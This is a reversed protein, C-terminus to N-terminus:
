GNSAFDIIKRSDEVQIKLAKFASEIIIQLSKLNFPEDDVVLIRMESSM